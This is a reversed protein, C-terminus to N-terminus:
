AAVKYEDLTDELNYNELSSKIVLNKVFMEWVALAIIVTIVTTLVHKTNM